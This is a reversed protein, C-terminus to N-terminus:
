TVRTGLPCSPRARWFVGMPATYSTPKFNPPSKGNPDDEGMLLTKAKLGIDTLFSGHPASIAM